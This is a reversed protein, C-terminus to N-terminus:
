NEVSSILSIIAVLILDIVLIMISISGLALIISSFSLLTLTFSTFASNSVVFIILSILSFIAIFLLFGKAGSKLDQPSLNMHMSICIGIIIFIWWKFDTLNKLTFINSILIKLNDLFSQLIANITINNTNFRSINQFIEFFADKLCLRILLIIVLSGVLIPGIAVFFLGLQQFINKKNYSFNVYGLVQAEKDTNYFKVSEVKIGFPYCFILHGFEHIPTGILGTLRYFGFGKKATSLILINLMYLLVGILILVGLSSFLQLLLGQFFGM